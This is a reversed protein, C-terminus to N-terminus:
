LQSIMKSIQMPNTLSSQRDGLLSEKCKERYLKTRENKKNNNNNELSDTKHHKKFSQLAVSLWM